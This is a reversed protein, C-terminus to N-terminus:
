FLHDRCAITIKLRKRNGWFSISFLFHSINTFYLAVRCFRKHPKKRFSLSENVQFNEHKLLEDLNM